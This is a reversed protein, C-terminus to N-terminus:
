EEIVEKVFKEIQSEIYVIMEKSDFKKDYIELDLLGLKLDQRSFTQYWRVMGKQMYGGATKLFASLPCVKKSLMYIDFVDRAQNRGQLLSRGLEDESMRGGTIAALKQFYISEASYVPVGNFRRLGPRSIIVEEVFDIKLRRSLGEISATYFRAKARGNMVFESELRIKCKIRKRFELIIAEIEKIDYKPSFFDLDVSSRHHLYYLELATGGCLAFSKAKRAFVLLFKKQIEKFGANKKDM